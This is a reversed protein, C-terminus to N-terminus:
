KLRMPFNKSKKKQIMPLSFYVFLSWVNSILLLTGDRDVQRYKARNHTFIPVILNGLYKNEPFFIM